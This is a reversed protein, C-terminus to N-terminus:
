GFILSYTRDTIETIIREISSKAGLERHKNLIDVDQWAPFGMSRLQKNVDRILAHDKSVATKISCWVTPVLDTKM